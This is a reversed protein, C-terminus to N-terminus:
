ASVLAQQRNTQHNPTHPRLNEALAPLNLLTLLDLTLRAKNLTYFHYSQVGGVSLKICLDLLVSLSHAEYLSPDTNGVLEAKLADPLRVGCQESFHFLKPIDSFVLIGPVLRSAFGFKDLRDRLRFFSDADFFFQTIAETAGADFKQLLWDFDQDASTADKHIDPYAATKISSWGADRLARIFSITHEFQPHLAPSEDKASDGRLALLHHVGSRKLLEASSLVESSSQGSYTLHAMIESDTHALVQRLTEFSRQKHSGGAGYTVSIYDPQAASLASVEGLLQRMGKPSTAPFIEFSINTDQTFAGKAEGLDNLPFIGNISHGTVTNRAPHAPSTM